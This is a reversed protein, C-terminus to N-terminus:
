RTADDLTENENSEEDAGAPKVRVLVAEEAGGHVLVVRLLGVGPGYFKHEVVGPSLPTSDAIQLVNDFSGVPVTVAQALDLVTFMDEAVGPACEQRFSQGITPVAPMVIGPQAGDVGALWSGETSVVEGDRYERSDEGFYWVNGAPNLALSRARELPLPRPV